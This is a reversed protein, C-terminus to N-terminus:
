PNLFPAHSQQWSGDFWPGSAYPMNKYTLLSVGVEEDNRQLDWIMQQARMEHMAALKLDFYINPHATDQGPFRACSALAMELLVEGRNAVFPPLQPQQPTLDSEKAIYIYPYLYSSTTPAPWLEYRPVGSTTQATCNIIFLDGANYTVGDPFYIQVGDMLDTAQDSSTVTPQFSAQGARMWQYTATGAQGSSVIQVIYSTNAPYSFGFSTTSVPTAGTVIAGICPGVIGSFNQQYDRFVCAYTQGQNTRQPDWLSLDDQTADTWLRYADKISTLVYWYGFDSPVPYFCQLIQYPALTVDPGAWPQDILLATPSVFAAVTYYPYLLGGLRIQQGVM